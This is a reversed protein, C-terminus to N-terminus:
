PKASISFKSGFEEQAGTLISDRDLSDLIQQIIFKPGGSGWQKGQAFYHRAAQGTVYTAYYALLGQAGVTFGASLGGSLTKLASSVLNVGWYSGMLVTLQSAITLLLRASESRSPQFGYVQGLHIILAIDTGAAALLDAVPVPNAAVAVAKGISYSRVVREALEQRLSVIRAAIQEDLDRAFLAANLAVLTKGEDELIDWLRHKLKQVDASRPRSTETTRGDDQQEIVTQPRPAASAAFIDKIAELGASREHLRDLISQLESSSYHDAKNLVLLVPRNLSAIESLAEQEVRTLDSDCIFLVLDSRACVDRALQEREEGGLEDIGPTDILIVRGEAAVSWLQTGAVRTEGHLPSTSFYQEGLLANLISSKGVSVRGFAAIHIEERRLKESLSEIADFEETMASRIAAPINGDDLLARLNDNANLLLQDPETTTTQRKRRLWPWGPLAARVRNFIKV